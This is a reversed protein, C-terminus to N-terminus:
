HSMLEIRLEVLAIPKATQSFNLLGRVMGLTPLIVPLNLSVSIFTM